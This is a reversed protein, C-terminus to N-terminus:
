NSHDGHNGHNGMTTYCPRSLIIDVLGLRDLLIHTCGAIQTFVLWHETSYTHSLTQTITEEKKRGDRM